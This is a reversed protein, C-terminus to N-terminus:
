PAETPGSNILPEQTESPSLPSSTDIVQGPLNNVLLQWAIDVDAVAIVPFSPLNSLALDLRAIIGDLTSTDAHPMGSVLESLFERAALVDMEALGYNSLSLYLRSRSLLEIARSVLVQQQLDALVSDKSLLLADHESSTVALEDLTTQIAQLQILAQSHAQIEISLVQVQGQLEVISITNETLSNELDIQRIQLDSLQGELLDLGAEQSSEIESLRATNTEIPLIFKEYLYPVTFYLGAGIVTIITLIVLFRLIKWFALGLRHWFSNTNINTENNM